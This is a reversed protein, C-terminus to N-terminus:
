GPDLILLSARGGISALAEGVRLGNLALLTILAASRPGDADAAGLLAILETETLGTTSSRDSVRPRKVRVVPSADLLGADVVAYEYLGSLCSLRRTVTAASAPRGTVSQPHELQEAIWRDVHHRRASLPPLDLGACWGYWARIDAFYARRTHGRYGLLFAAALRWAPDADLGPVGLAATPLRALAAASGPDAPAPPDTV